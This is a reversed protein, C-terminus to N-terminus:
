QRQGPVERWEREPLITITPMLSGNGIQWKNLDGEWLENLRGKIFKFEGARKWGGYPIKALLRMGNTAM